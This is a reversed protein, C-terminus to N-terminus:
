HVCCILEATAMLGEVFTEFDFTVLFGKSQHMWCYKRVAVKKDTWTEKRVSFCHKESQLRRDPTSLLVISSFEADSEYLLFERMHYSLNKARFQIDFRWLPFQVYQSRFAFFIPWKIWLKGFIHWLLKFLGSFVTFAYAKYYCICNM